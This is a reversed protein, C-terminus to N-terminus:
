LYLVEASKSVPVFHENYEKLSIYYFPYRGGISLRLSTQETSFSNACCEWKTGVPIVNSGDYLDKICM